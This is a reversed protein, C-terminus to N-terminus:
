KGRIAGSHAEGPPSERKKDRTKECDGARLHAGTDIFCSVQAYVDRYWAITRVRSRDEIRSADTEISDVRCSAVDVIVQKSIRRELISREGADSHTGDLTVKTERLLDAKGREVLGETCLSSIWKTTSSYTLPYRRKGRSDIRVCVEGLVVRKARDGDTLVFVTM